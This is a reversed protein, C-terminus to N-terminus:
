ATHDAAAGRRRRFLLAAASAILIGLCAGCFDICVDRLECSRGPVYYQHIEDSAAYILACRAPLIIARKPAAQRSQDTIGPIRRVTATLLIGLITYESFHGCKRFIVHLNEAITQQEATSCSRFGPLLASLFRHLLGSSLHDSADATQASFRFIVYMWLLTLLAPFLLQLTERKIKGM